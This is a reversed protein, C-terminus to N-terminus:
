HLVLSLAGPVALVAATLWHKWTPQQLKRFGMAVAVAMGGFLALGAGILKDNEGSGILGFVLAVAFTQLASLLLIGIVIIRKAKEWAMVQAFDNMIM